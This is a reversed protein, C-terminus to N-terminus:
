IGKTQAYELHRTRLSVGLHVQAGEAGYVEVLYTGLKGNVEARDGVTVVHNSLAQYGDVRASLTARRQAASVNQVLVFLGGDSTTAATGARIWRSALVVPEPSVRALRQRELESIRQRLRFIEDRSRHSRFAEVILWAVVFVAVVLGFFILTINDHVFRLIAYWSHM